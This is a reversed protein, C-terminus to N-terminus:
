LKMFCIYATFGVCALGEVVRLFPDSGQNRGCYLDIAQDLREAVEAGEVAEVELHRGPLHM